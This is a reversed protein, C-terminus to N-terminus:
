RQGKPFRMLLSVPLSRMPWASHVETLLVNAVVAVGLLVPIATGLVERAFLSGFNM